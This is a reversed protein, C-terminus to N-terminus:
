RLLLIGRVIEVFGSYETRQHASLPRFGGNRSVNLIRRVRVANLNLSGGAELDPTILSASLRRAPLSKALNRRSTRKTTM